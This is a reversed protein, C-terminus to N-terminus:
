DAGRLYLKQSRWQDYAVERVQKMWDLRQEDHDGPARKLRNLFAQMSALEDNIFQIDGRVGRILAYEESLLSGLKSLLSKLTAESAGVALEM